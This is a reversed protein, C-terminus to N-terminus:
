DWSGWRVEKDYARGDPAERRTTSRYLKSSLPWRVGELAEVSVRGVTTSDLWSVPRLLVFVGWGVRKFSNCDRSLGTDM